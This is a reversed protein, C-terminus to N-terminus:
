RSPWISLIALLDSGDLDRSIQCLPRASLGALRASESTLKKVSLASTQAFFPSPTFATIDNWLQNPTAELTDGWLDHMRRLDVVLARLLDSIKDLEQIFSGNSFTSSSEAWQLLKQHIKKHNMQYTYITEVWAMMGFKSTLFTKLTRICKTLLSDYAVAMGDEVPRLSSQVEALHEAWFDAAYRLFSLKKDLTRRSAKEFMSGSLPGKLNRLRHYLLCTTTLEVEVEFRAPHFFAISGVVPGYVAEPASCRTRFFEFASHHVFRCLKAQSDASWRLEVLSSCVMVLSHEFDTFKAMSDMCGLEEQSASQENSLTVLLDQLQAEDFPRKGYALWTFVRRAFLQEVRLKSSIMKLIRLYMDELREPTKLDLVARLRASAPLAESQLYAIMLRAWEFMGDAGKLLCGVLDGRNSSNPILGSDQMHELQKTFYARLDDESRDPTIPICIAVRTKRRLYNVNPRSFLIVQLNKRITPNLLGELFKDPQNCEDVADIVIFWRLRLSVWMLLDLLEGTSAFTQGERRNTLAVTFLDLIELDEDHDHLVQVLLSAYASRCSSQLHNNYDFFFYSVTTYEDNDIM